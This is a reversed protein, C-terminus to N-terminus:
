IELEPEPEEPLPPLDNPGSLGFHEFFQTTTKYLNPRGPGPAQGVVEVLERLELSRVIGDCNVGRIAEIESRTCPQKYAVITLTELAARSLRPGDDMGLLLSVYPANAPATALQYRSGDGQLRLGRAEYDAALTKLARRVAGEGTGCARALAGVTLPEPSAFLLSEIVWPLENNSPKPPPAYEETTM